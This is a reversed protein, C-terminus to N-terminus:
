SFKFAADKLFNILKATLFLRVRWRAFWLLILLLRLQRLLRLFQKSPLVVFMLVFLPLLRFLKVELLEMLPQPQELSGDPAQVGGM